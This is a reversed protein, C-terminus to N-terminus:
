GVLFGHFYTYNTNGHVTKTFQLKVEVTDNASLETTVHCFDTYYGGNGTTGNVYEARRHSYALLTSVNKYVYFSDIMNDGDNNSMYIISVGFFYVGGVPATFQGTSTNYHNGRNFHTSSSATHNFIVTAGASVSVNGNRGAKFAPHDPKTVFGSQTSNGSVTLNKPVTTNGSSDITQATTGNTHKINQVLLNSM